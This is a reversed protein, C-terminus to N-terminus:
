KPAKWESVTHLRFWYRTLLMQLHPIEHNEGKLNTMYETKWSFVPFLNETQIFLEPQMRDFGYSYFLM